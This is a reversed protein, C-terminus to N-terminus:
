SIDPNLKITTLILTLDERSLNKEKVLFRLKDLDKKTGILMFRRFFSEMERVDRVERM